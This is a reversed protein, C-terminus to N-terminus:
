KKNSPKWGHEVARLLNEQKQAKAKTTAGHSKGTTKTVVQYKSGKKRIAYPM